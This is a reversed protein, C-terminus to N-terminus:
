IADVLEWALLLPALDGWPIGIGSSYKEERVVVRRKPRQRDLEARRVRLVLPESSDARHVSWQFSSVDDRGVPERGPVEGLGVDGCIVSTPVVEDDVPIYTRVRRM